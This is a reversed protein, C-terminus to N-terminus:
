ITFSVVPLALRDQPPGSCRRTPSINWQGHVRLLKKMTIVPADPDHMVAAMENAAPAAVVEEEQPAVVKEEESM